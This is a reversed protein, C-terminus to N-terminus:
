RSQEFFLNHGIPLMAHISMCCIIHEQGKREVCRVWDKRKQYLEVQINSVPTLYLRSM